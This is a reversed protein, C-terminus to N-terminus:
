LEAPAMLKRQLEKASSVLRMIKGKRWLRYLIRLITGLRIRGKVRVCGELLFHEAAFDASLKFRKAYVPYLIGLVSLARGLSYPDGTSFRVEGEIKYPFVHKLLQFISKGAYKIGNKNEEDRLFGLVLKGKGTIDSAKGEAARIKEKLNRVTGALKAFFAKIKDILNKIRGILRAIPRFLRHVSGEPAGEGGKETEATDTTDQASHDAPEPGPQKLPHPSDKGAEAAPPEEGSQGSADAGDKGAEAASGTGATKVGEPKGGAIGAADEANGPSGANEPREEAPEESQREGKGATRKGKKRGGRGGKKDGSFLTIGFVTLKIHLKGDEFRVPLRILRFLYSVQAQVTLEEGNKVVSARYRVPVFVLILLLFLLLLLICLLIIGIIKLITGLINLILM